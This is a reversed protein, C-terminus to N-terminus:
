ARGGIFEGVTECLTLDGRRVRGTSQALSRWKAIHRSNDNGIGAFTDRGNVHTFVSEYITAEIAPIAAIDIQRPLTATGQCVAGNDSINMLPAKFTRTKESPRTNHLLARVYLVPQRQFDVRWLLPPWEVMLHHTGGNRIWMVGVRRKSYWALRTPTNLLVQEPIMSTSCASSADLQNVAELIQAENLPKAAGLKGNRISHEVIGTCKVDYNINGSYFVWAKEPTPDDPINRNAGIPTQSNIEVQTAVQM